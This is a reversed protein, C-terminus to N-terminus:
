KFWSFFFYIFPEFPLFAAFATLFLPAAQEDNAPFLVRFHFIKVPTLKVPESSIEPFFIRL